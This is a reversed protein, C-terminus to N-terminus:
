VASFKLKLNSLVLGFAYNVVMHRPVLLDCIVFSSTKRRCEVVQSHFCTNLFPSANSSLSRAAIGMALFSSQKVLTVCARCCPSFVKVIEHLIVWFTFCLGRIYQNFFNIIVVIPFKLRLSWNTRYLLLTPFLQVPVAFEPLFSVACASLMTSVRILLCVSYAM